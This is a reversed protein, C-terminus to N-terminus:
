VPLELCMLLDLQCSLIASCLQSCVKATGLLTSTVNRAPEEDLDMEDAEKEKLEQRPSWSRKNKAPVVQAVGVEPLVARGQSCGGVADSAVGPAALPDGAAALQGAASTGAVGRDLPQMELQASVAGDRPLRIGREVQCATPPKAGWEPVVAALSTSHKGSGSSLLDSLSSSPQSAQREALAAQVALHTAPSLEPAKRRASTSYSSAPPAPEQLHKASKNDLFKFSRTDDEDTLLTDEYFVCNEETTDDYLILFPFDDGEEYHVVEGKFYDQEGEWYM